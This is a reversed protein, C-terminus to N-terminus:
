LEFTRSGTQNDDTNEVLMKLHELSSILEAEFDKAAFSNEALFEFKGKLLDKIRLFYIEPNRDPRANVPVREVLTSSAIGERKIVAKEEENFEVSVTIKPYTKFSLVGTKGTSHDISIRM